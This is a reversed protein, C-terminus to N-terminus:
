ASGTIQPIGAKVAADRLETLCLAANQLKELRQSPTLKLNERLLSLDVGNEDQEGYPHARLYAQLRERQEEENEPTGTQCPKTSM